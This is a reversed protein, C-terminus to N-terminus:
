GAKGEHEEKLRAIHRMIEDSIEQYAKRGNKEFIGETFYIPKGIYVAVPRRKLTKVGRPLAKFSGEIYAPVVPVDAKAVIFGIGPKAPRLENNKSRTGEPFIVLPRGEKLIRLSDKIARYDSDNRKVPFAHLKHMIWGFCQKKFLNERAMYNLSRNVSTGLLIPDLYSSHNAAFIFAGKEPANKRGVINFGLYVKFLILFLSWGIFYIM